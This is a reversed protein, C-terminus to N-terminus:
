IKEWVTAGGSALLYDTTKYDVLPAIRLFDLLESALAILPSVYGPTDPKTIALYIAEEPVCTMQPPTGPKVYFSSFHRVDTYINPWLSKPKARLFELLCARLTDPSLSNETLIGSFVQHDFRSPDLDPGKLGGSITYNRGRNSRDLAKVSAINDLASLLSAKSAIAAKNEFVAAVSEVLFHNIGGVQFVPHYDARYVVLDVQRSISGATDIVFGTSVAYTKPILKQLFESLVHERALGSEGPHHIAAALDLQDLVQRNLSELVQPIVSSPM